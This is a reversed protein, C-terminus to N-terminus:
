GAIWAQNYPERPERDYISRNPDTAFAHSVAALPDDKYWVGYYRLAKLGAKRLRDCMDAACRDNASHIVYYCNTRPNELIRDVAVSGSNEKPDLGNSMDLDHDLFIVDWEMDKRKYLYEFDAVEDFVAKYHGILNRKFYKIRDPDDELILVNM